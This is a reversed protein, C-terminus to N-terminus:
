GDMGKGRPGGYLPGHVAGGCNGDTESSDQPPAKPLGPSPVARYQASLSSTSSIRAPGGAPVKEGAAASTSTLVLTAPPMPGPVDGKQACTSLRSVSAMPQLAGPAVILAMVNAEYPVGVPAHPLQATFALQLAGLELVM